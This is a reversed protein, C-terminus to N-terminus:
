ILRRFDYPNQADNGRLSFWVAKDYTSAAEQVRVNKKGKQIAEHLKVNALVHGKYVLVRRNGDYNVGYFTETGPVYDQLLARVNPPNPRM